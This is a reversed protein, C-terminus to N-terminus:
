ILGAERLKILDDPKIGATAMARLEAPDIVRKPAEMPSLIVRGRDDVAHADVEGTVSTAVGGPKLKEIAEYLGDADFFHEGAGDGSSSTYPYVADLNVGDIAVYILNNDYIVTKGAYRSREKELWPNPADKDLKEINLLDALM